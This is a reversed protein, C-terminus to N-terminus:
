VGAFGNHKGYLIVTLKVTKKSRGVMELLRVGLYSWAFVNLGLFFGALFTVLGELELVRPALFDPRLAVLLRFTALLFDAVGFALADVLPPARVAADVCVPPFDALALPPNLDLAVARLATLFGATTLDLTELDAVLFDAVFFDVALFGVLLRGVTLFDAVLDAFFTAALDVVLDFRAATLGVPLFTALLCGDGGWGVSKLRSVCASM